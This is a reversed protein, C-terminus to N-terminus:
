GPCGSNETSVLSLEKYILRMDRFVKSARSVIEQIGIEASKNVDRFGANLTKSSPLSNARKKALRESKVAKSLNWEPSTDIKRYSLLAHHIGITTLRGEFCGKTIIVLL